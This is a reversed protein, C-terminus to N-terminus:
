CRECRSCSSSEGTTRRTWTGLTRLRGTMEPQRQGLSDCTGKQPVAAFARSELGHGRRPCSAHPLAEDYM